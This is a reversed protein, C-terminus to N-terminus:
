FYFFLMRSKEGWSFCIEKNGRACEIEEEDPYFMKKKSHEM